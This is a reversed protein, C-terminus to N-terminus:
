GPAARIVGALVVTMRELVVALVALIGIARLPALTAHVQAPHAARAMLAAAVELVIAAVLLPAGVAIAITIGGVLAQAVDLVPHVAMPRTALADVVRAPGGTSLFVASALLSLLVGLPTPRGEVAPSAVADNSSRVADALGGAMTAAWLPVAAAVAIPLGRLVEGLALAVWPVSRAMAAEPLLAPFIAGALAFAVVARAPGPLARLGFAPVLAVTPTARAWALGLAALDIGGRDFADAIEALLSEGPMAPM